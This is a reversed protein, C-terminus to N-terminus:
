SREREEHREHGRKEEGKMWERIGKERKKGRQTRADGMEHAEHREHNVERRAKANGEEEDTNDAHDTPM